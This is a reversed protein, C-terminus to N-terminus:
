QGLQVIKAPLYPLEVALFRQPLVIRLPKALLGVSLAAVEPLVALATIHQRTGTIRLARAALTAPALSGVARSIGYPPLALPTEGAHLSDPGLEGALEGFTFARCEVNDHGVAPLVAFAVSRYLFDAIPGADPRGRNAIRQAFGAREAQQADGLAPLPSGPVEGIVNNDHM